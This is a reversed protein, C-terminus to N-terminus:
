QGDQKQERRNLKLGFNGRERWLAYFQLHEGQYSVFPLRCWSHQIIAWNWGGDRSFVAEPESGYRLFDKDAVGIVYFTFNHLPNRAQWLVGRGRAQPRYWDPPTPDDANGFWWIPNWKQTGGPPPDAQHVVVKERRPLGTRPPLVCCSVCLAVAMALAARTPDM